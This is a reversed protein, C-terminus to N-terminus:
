FRYGFRFSVTTGHALDTGDIHEALPTEVELQFDLEPRPRFAWNFALSTLEGGSPSEATNNPSDPVPLVVSALIIAARVSEWKMASDATM